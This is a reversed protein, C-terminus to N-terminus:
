RHCTRALARSREKAQEAMRDWEEAIRLYREKISEEPAGDAERRADDARQSYKEQMNVTSM